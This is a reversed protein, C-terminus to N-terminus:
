KYHAPSWGHSRTILDQDDEEEAFIGDTEDVTGDDGKSRAISSDHHTNLRPDHSCKKPVGNSVAHGGNVSVPNFIAGTKIASSNGNSAEKDYTCLRHFFDNTDIISYKLSLKEILIIADFSNM